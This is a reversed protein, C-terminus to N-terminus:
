EDEEKYYYDFPNYGSITDHGIIEQLKKIFDQDDSKITLDDDELEGYIDSHKGLVEGFSIRKGILQKVNKEEAIFLGDIEGQRGCDWNFEYLKKM